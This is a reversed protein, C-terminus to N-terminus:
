NVGKSLTSIDIAVKSSSVVSEQTNSRHNDLWRRIESLELNMYSKDIAYKCCVQM